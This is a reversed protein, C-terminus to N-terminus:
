TLTNLPHTLEPYVLTKLPLIKNHPTIIKNSEAQRITWEPLNQYNEKARASSFYSFQFIM